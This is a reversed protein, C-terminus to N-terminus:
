NFVEDMSGADAMGGFIEKLVGPPANEGM